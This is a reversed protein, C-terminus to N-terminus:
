STFAIDAPGTSIRLCGSRSAPGTDDPMSTVTPKFFGRGGRAPLITLPWTMSPIVPLGHVASVVIRTPVLSRVAFTVHVVVGAFTRTVPFTTTSPPLGAKVPTRISGLVPVEIAVAASSM